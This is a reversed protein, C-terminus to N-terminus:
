INKPHIAIETNTCFILIICFLSHNEELLSIPWSRTMETQLLHIRIRRSFPVHDQNIYLTQVPLPLNRIM